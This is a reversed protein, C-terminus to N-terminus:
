DIVVFSDPDEGSEQVEPDERVPLAQQAPDSPNIERLTKELLVTGPLVVLNLKKYNSKDEAKVPQFAFGNVWTPVLEPVASIAIKKIEHATLMEEIAGMLLRCMGQRRYKSCTAVLPIEAFDSGHIRLSAVCLVVDDKELIVAYFGRFDFRPFDSGFNYLMHPIMDIGTRSDVMSLFCEEMITLAVALKTNCDTQFLFQQQSHINLDDHFCKLLTSSYGNEIPVAMGIRSQMASYIEHCNRGCFWTGSVVVAEMHMEMLCAVHYKHECQACKLGESLGARSFEGCFHCVCRSCYWDGEPLDQTPLCNQHFTAPCNDCCVLDGGDGCLGCIDDSNDDDEARTPGKRNKRMTYEASWGQLLCLAYSKGSGMDLNACPESSNVGAHLRFQCVSYVKSCCYCLIGESTLFGEKLAKDSRPLSYHITEDLHVFGADILWSLTTRSGSSICKETEATPLLSRSRGRGRVKRKSDRVKLKSATGGKSHSGSGCCHRKTKDKMASLLLDEDVVLGNVPKFPVLSRESGVERARNLDLGASVSHQNTHEVLEMDAKKDRFIDEQKKWFVTVDHLSDEDTETEKESGIQQRLSANSLDLSDVMSSYDAIPDIHVDHLGGEMGSAGEFLIPESDGGDSIQMKKRGRRSGENHESEGMKGKGPKLGEEGFSLMKGSGAEENQDVNNEEWVIMAGEAAVASGSAQLEMNKEPSIERTAPVQDFCLDGNNKVRANEPISKMAHIATGKRLAGIKRDIFMLAVFPDLINWVRALEGATESGNIKLDARALTKNLDACYHSLNTWVKDARQGEVKCNNVDLSRGLLRWLKPFERVRKGTGSIYMKEKYTRCDRQLVEIRWGLVEMLRNILENLQERTDKLSVGGFLEDDEENEKRSSKSNSSDFPVIAKTACSEQSAPSTVQKIVALEKCENREQSLVNNHRGNDDESLSISREEAAGKFVGGSSAISNRSSSPVTYKSYEVVRFGLQQSSTDSSFQSGSSVSGKEVVAIESCTKECTVESVSSKKRKSDRASEVRRGKSMDCGNSSGKLLVEKFSLLTPNEGSTAANADTCKSGQPKSNVSKACSGKGSFTEKFIRSEENSAGFGNDDELIEM